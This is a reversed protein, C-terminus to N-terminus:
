PRQGFSSPTPPAPPVHSSAPGKGIKLNSLQPIIPNGSRCTNGLPMVNARSERGSMTTGASSPTRRVALVSAPGPHLGQTGDTYKLVACYLRTRNPITNWASSPGGRGYDSRQHATFDVIRYPNSTAAAAFFAVVMRGPTTASRRELAQGRDVGKVPKGKYLPARVISGHGAPAPRTDTPNSNKEFAM